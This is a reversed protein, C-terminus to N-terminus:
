RDISCESVAVRWEGLCCGAITNDWLDCDGYSCVVGTWACSEGTKPPVRPCGFPLEAVNCSWCWGEDCAQCRCTTGDVYPCVGPGDCAQQEEEIPPETPCPVLTEDSDDIGVGGRGASASAAASGGGAPGDGSSGGVGASAGVGAKGGLGIVLTGGAGSAFEPCIQLIGGIVGPGGKTAKGGSTFGANTIIPGPGTAGTGFPDIGGGTGGSSYSTGSSCACAWLGIVTAM